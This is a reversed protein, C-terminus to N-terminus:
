QLSFLLWLFLLLLLKFSVVFYLKGAVQCCRSAERNSSMVNFRLIGKREWASNYFCYSTSVSSILRYRNFYTEKFSAANSYWHGCWYVKLFFCFVTCIVWATVVSLKLSLNGICFFSQFPKRLLHPVPELHHLCNM